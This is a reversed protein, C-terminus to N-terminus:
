LRMSQTTPRLDLLDTGSIMELRQLRSTWSGEEDATLDRLRDFMRLLRRWALKRSRRWGAIYYDAYEPPFITARAWESHKAPRNGFLSAMVRLEVVIQEELLEIEHMRFKPSVRRAFSRVRNSVILTHSIAALRSSLM